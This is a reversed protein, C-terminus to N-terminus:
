EVRDVAKQAEAMAKFIRTDIPVSRDYIEAETLLKAEVLRDIVEDIQDTALGYKTMLNSRDMGLQVDEAFERANIKRRIKKVRGVTLDDDAPDALSKAHRMRHLLSLLERLTIRHAAMLRRLDRAVERENPRGRRRPGLKSVEAESLVGDDILKQLVRNLQVENVRYKGMLQDYNLGSHVDRVFDGAIITRRPKM